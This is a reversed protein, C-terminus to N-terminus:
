ITKANTLKPLRGVRSLLFIMYRAANTKVFQLYVITVLSFTM